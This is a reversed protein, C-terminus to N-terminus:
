LTTLFSEANTEDHILFSEENTEDHIIYDATMGSTYAPLTASVTEGAFSLQITQGAFVNNTIQEFDIDSDLFMSYTQNQGTDVVDYSPYVTIAENANASSSLMSLLTIFKADDGDNYNYLECEFLPIFGVHHRITKGNVTKNDIKDHKHYVRSIANDFTVTDSGYAFRVSGWGWISNTM